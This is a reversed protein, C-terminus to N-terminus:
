FRFSGLFYDAVGAACSADLPTPFLEDSPEFSYRSRSALSLEICVPVPVNGIVYFPACNNAHVHFVAHTTTLKSFVRAILTRKSEVALGSLHHFECLIQSFAGLTREDIADFVEWESGEIDVKLILTDPVADETLRKLSVEGDALLMQKHFRLREHTLPPSDITGDFQEVCLGRAAMALDWDANDGVGISLAGVIGELDDLMVYGGDSSTGFRKKEVGVVCQPALPRLAALLAAQDERSLKRGLIREIKQNLKYLRYFVRGALETIFPPTEDPKMHRLWPFLRQLM